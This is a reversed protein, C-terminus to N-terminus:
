LLALLLKLIRAGVREHQARGAHALVCALPLEGLRTARRGAADAHQSAGARAVASPQACVGELNHQSFGIGLRLIVQVRRQPGCPVRARAGCAQPTCAAISGVRM